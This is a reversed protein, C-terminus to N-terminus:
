EKKEKEEKEKKEKKKKEKKEKEKEKKEKDEKKNEKKKKDEKKNEKDKDKNKKKKEKKKKKDKDKKDKEKKDKEKNRKKKNGKKKKEENKDKEKKDKKNKDKEKNDKNENDKKKVDKKNNNEKEKIVKKEKDIEKSEKKEKDKLKIDIKEEKIIDNDKRNEKYNNKGEYKENNLLLNEKINKERNNDDNNNHNEINEKEKEKNNNDKKKKSKGKEEDNDDEEEEEEDNDEEDEEEGEEEDEDEEEEEEEEEEEKEEEKEKDKETENEKDEDEKEKDEETENEKDEEEEEKERDEETENEKDEEEKNEEDEKKKNNVESDENKNDGDEEKEEKSYKEKKNNNDKINEIKNNENKTDTKKSDDTIKTKLFNKREPGIIKDINFEKDKMDDIQNYNISNRIIKPLILKQFPNKSINITKNFYINDKSAETEMKNYNDYNISPLKVSKSSINKFIIKNDKNINFNSNKSYRLNLSPLRNKEKILPKIINPFKIEERERNRDDIEKRNYKDLINNVLVKISRDKYKDFDFNINYIMGIKEKKNMMDIKKQYTDKNLNVNRNILYRELDKSSFLKKIEKELNTITCEKNMIIFFQITFLPFKSSSGNPIGIGVINENLKYIFLNDVLCINVIKEDRHFNNYKPFDPNEYDQKIEDYIQKSLLVFDYFYNIVKGSYYDVYINKPINDEKVSFDISDLNNIRQNKEGPQKQIRKEKLIKYIDDESMKDRNNIREYTRKIKEYNNLELYNNMWKSNIAYYEKFYDESKFDKDNYGRKLSTIINNHFKDLKLLKKITYKQIDKKNFINNNDKNLNYAM